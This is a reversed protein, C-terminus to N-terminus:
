YTGTSIFVGNTMYGSYGHTGLANTPIDVNMFTSGITPNATVYQAYLEKIEAANMARNWIRTAGQNGGTLADLIWYQSTGGPALLAGSYADSSFSAGDIYSKVTTGDWTVALHHWNGDALAATAHIVNLAANNIQIGLYYTGAAQAVHVNFVDNALAGFWDFFVPYWSTGFPGCQFTTEFTLASIQTNLVPPTFAVANSYTSLYGMNPAANSSYIASGVLGNTWYIWPSAGLMIGTLAQALPQAPSFNLTSSSGVNTGAGESFVSDFILGKYLPNIYNNTIFFYSTASIPTLTLVKCDPALLANTIPTNVPIFWDSVNTYCDHAMYGALGNTPLGCQAFTVAFTVPNNTDWNVADYGWAGGQMQKTFVNTASTYSGLVITPLKMLPDQDIRLFVDIPYFATQYMPISPYANVVLFQCSYMANLSGCIKDYRWIYDYITGPNFDYWFGSLYHGPSIATSFNTVSYNFMNRWAQFDAAQDVFGSGSIQQIVPCIKELIPLTTKFVHTGSLSDPWPDQITIISSYGSASCALVSIITQNLSTQPDTNWDGHGDFRDVYPAYYAYNGFTNSIIGHFPAGLDTYTGNQLFLAFSINNSRVFTSMAPVGGPFNTNAQLIGNADYITGNTAEWGSDAEIQFRKGLQPLPSLQYQNTVYWIINSLTWSTSAQFHYDFVMKPLGASQIYSESVQGAAMGVSPLNTLAGGSYQLVNTLGLTVWGNSVVAQANSISQSNVIAAAVADTNTDYRTQIFPSACASLGVITLAATILRKMIM